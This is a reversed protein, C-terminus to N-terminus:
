LTKAMRGEKDEAVMQEEPPAGCTAAFSTLRMGLKLDIRTCLAEWTM